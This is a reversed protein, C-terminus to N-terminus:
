NLFLVLSLSSIIIKTWDYCKLVIPIYYRVPGSIVWNNIDYFPVEIIKKFLPHPGPPNMIKGGDGAWNSVLKLLWAYMLNSAKARCQIM